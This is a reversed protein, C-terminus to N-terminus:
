GGRSSLGIVLAPLDAPISTTSKVPSSSAATPGGGDFVCSRSVGWLGGILISGQAPHLDLLGGTCDKRVRDLGMVEDAKRLWPGRLSANTGVVARQRSGLELSQRYNSALPGVSMMKLAVFNRGLGMVLVRHQHGIQQNQARQYLAPVRNRVTGMWANWDAEM